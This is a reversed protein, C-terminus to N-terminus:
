ARRVVRPGPNRDWIIEDVITQEHSVSSPIFEEEPAWATEPRDKPIAPLTKTRWTSLSNPVSDTFVKYYLARLEKEDVVRRLDVWLADGLREVWVDLPVLVKRSNEM